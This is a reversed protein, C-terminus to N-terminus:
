QLKRTKTATKENVVFFRIEAPQECLSMAGLPLFFILVLSLLRKVVANAKSGIYYENLFRRAVTVFPFFIQWHALIQM